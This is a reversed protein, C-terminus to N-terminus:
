KPKYGIEELTTSIMDWDAPDTWKITVTKSEPDGEVSKIGEIEALERKITMLCHVCNMDPITVTKEEM